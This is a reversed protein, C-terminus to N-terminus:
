DNQKKKLRALASKWEPQEKGTIRKLRKCLKTVQKIGLTLPEEDEYMTKCAELIKDVQNLVLLAESELDYWILINWINDFATSVSEIVKLSKSFEGSFRGITGLTEISQRLNDIGKEEIQVREPGVFHWFFEYIKNAILCAKNESGLAILVVILDLDNLIQETYKYPTNEEELLGELLHINYLFDLRQEIGNTDTDNLALIEYATKRIEFQFLAKEIGLPTKLPNHQQIRQSRVAQEWDLKYRKVLLPSFGKTVGGKKHIEDHHDICVAALNNPHNNSPDGDIHHIQVKKSQDRCICCTRDSHFLIETGVKSPIKKRAKTM